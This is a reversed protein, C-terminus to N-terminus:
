RGTPVTVTAPRPTDWRCCTGVSKVDLAELITERQFCSVVGPQGFDVCIIAAKPLVLVPLQVPAAVVFAAASMIVAAILVAGPLAFPLQERITQVIKPIQM